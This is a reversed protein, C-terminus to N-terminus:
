GRVSGPMGTEASVRAPQMGTHGDQHRRRLNELMDWIPELDGLSWGGGAGRAGQACVDWLPLAAHLSIPFPQM